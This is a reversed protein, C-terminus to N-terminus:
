AAAAPLRLTIVTGGGLRRGLTVAGGLTVAVSRAVGRGVGAARASSRYFPDFAHRTEEATLDRGNDSVELVIEADRQEVCVIIRNSANTTEADFGSSSFLLIALV